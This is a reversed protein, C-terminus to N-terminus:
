SSPPITVACKGGMGTIAAQLGSSAQSWLPGLPPIDPYTFTSEDWAQTLNLMNCGIGNLLQQDNQNGGCSSAITWDMLIPAIEMGVQFSAQTTLPPMTTSLISNLNSLNADSLSWINTAPSAGQAEEQVTTSWIQVGNWFNAQFTPTSFVSMSAM